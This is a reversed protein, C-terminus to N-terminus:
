RTQSLDGIITCDTSPAQACVQTCDGALGVLTRELADIEARRARLIQLQAKAIDRVDLCTGAGSM